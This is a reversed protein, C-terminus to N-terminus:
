GGPNTTGASVEEGSLFNAARPGCRYFVGAFWLEVAARLLAWLIYLAYRRTWYHYYDLGAPGDGHTAYRILALLYGPVETLNFIAWFVFYVCLVRGAITVARATSLPSGSSEM